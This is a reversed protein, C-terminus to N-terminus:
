TSSYRFFLMSVIFSFFQISIEPQRTVLTCRKFQFRLNLQSLEACLLFFCVLSFRSNFITTVSNNKENKGNNEPQAYRGQENSEM